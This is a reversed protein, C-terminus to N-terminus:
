VNVIQRHAQLSNNWYISEPTAYGLSQHLRESNYFQFYKRLNTRLEKVSKYEKLYIEEYKVTRWLREIFINDLARGKGDMSVKIGRGEILAIFGESTYQVGQDTNFIDPIGKELAEKVAEICFSGELSNSLRWSLVYRSYWDIVATLYMFGGVVKIYTIDSSWVQNCKEIEVGRLLYPYKKHEATSKSTNKKPCIGALGMQKMLRQVRKRNVQYGQTQLWKAMKRSGYFPHDTYEKDILAM